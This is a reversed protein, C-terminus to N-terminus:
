SKWFTSNESNSYFLLTNLNLKPNHGIVKSGLIWLICGAKFVKNETLINCIFFTLLFASQVYYLFLSLLRFIHIKINKFDIQIIGFIQFCNQRPSWSYTSFLLEHFVTEFINRLFFFIEFMVVAWRNRM